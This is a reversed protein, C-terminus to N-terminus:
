SYIILFNGNITKILNMTSKDRNIFITFASFWNSSKSVPPIVEIFTLISPNVAAKEATVSLPITSIIRPKPKTTITQTKM